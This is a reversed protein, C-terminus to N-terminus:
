RAYRRAVERCFYAFEGVDQPPSTHSPVMGRSPPTFCLTVTVDFRSLRSMMRDFWIVANPRHWDAWSIGTRLVRVGLRPLWRCILDLMDDDDYEVWQCIGAEPPFHGLSMKPTEDSRLLGFYFHRYYASGESEKHRTIAGKEVPLDILSYWHVRPVLPLLLEMTRELGFLQVEEAGFSSAGVETVWVPRGAAERMEAIKAPWEDIQWLNWDLPFGHLAIIDMADAVGLRCMREAFDPDLPSLGGLVRTVGPAENKVERAAYLIMQSFTTWEPDLTYDWHSLNNPENWFQIAEIM